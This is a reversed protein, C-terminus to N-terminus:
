GDQERRKGDACFWNEEPSFANDDTSLVECYHSIGWSKDAELYHICKRCRVPVIARDEDGKRSIHNLIRRKSGSM